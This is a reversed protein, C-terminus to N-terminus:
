AIALQMQIWYIIHLHAHGGHYIRNKKQLLSKKIWEKWREREWLWGALQNRKWSKEYNWHSNKKRERRRSEDFHLKKKKWKLMLMTYKHANYCKHTHTHMYCANCWSACKDGHLSMACTFKQHEMAKAVLVQVTNEEYCCQM